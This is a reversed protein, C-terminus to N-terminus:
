NVTSELERIFEYGDVNTYIMSYSEELWKLFGKPTADSAKYLERMFEGGMYRDPKPRPISDLQNILNDLDAMTIPKLEMRDVPMNNLNWILGKGNGDHKELM